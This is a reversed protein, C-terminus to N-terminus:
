SEGSKGGREERLCWVSNWCCFGNAHVRAFVAFPLAAGDADAFSCVLDQGLVGATGEECRFLQVFFSSARGAVKMVSLVFEPVNEFPSYRKSIPM